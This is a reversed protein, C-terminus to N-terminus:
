ELSRLAEAPRLRAARLGGVAGAILGGLVALGVAILLLQLDVPADLAVDTSGGGAQGQGFPGPGGPGVVMPGQQAAGAVTAELTPGIATVIAAGALGVAAGLAGGLLGQALSEGAVQRVVLRQPWGLAKLTGLERVRKNVSSLTLLSAILFAGGLGIIVLATGLSDALGQADDLSGGVRDALDSATTVQSGSFSAEIAKAVSSVSDSDSARVNMANVRGERDSLKQLQGLEVYVDSAQAGLPASAIGVVRFKKGGATVRDGLSIGERRAYSQTLVAERGSGDLYRGSTIEGPTVPALEPKSTDVGTVSLNEFNIDQPPGTGPGFVRDGGTREPVTGEVHISNLTLTTAVGEVGDLAAVKDAQRASFTLQSTSVLDDREFKDGPNGQPLQVRAGGPGGNEERLRRQEAESLGGPGASFRDGDGSVRLPRSVSMDTGVGTLPELVEDQAKDLGDSLASVVVVLGVGVALGLATLITRGRRRRLEASIYSIFFVSGVGENSQRQLWDFPAM